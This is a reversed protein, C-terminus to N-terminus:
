RRRMETELLATVQSLQAILERLDGSETQAIPSLVEVAGGVLGLCAAPWASSDRSRDGSAGQGRRRELLRGAAAILHEASRVAVSEPAADSTTAILRTLRRHAEGLELEVPAAHAAAGNGSQPPKRAASASTEPESPARFRALRHTGDCFPRM